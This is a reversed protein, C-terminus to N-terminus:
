RLRKRAREISAKLTTKAQVGQYCEDGIFLTPLGELKLLKREENFKKLQTKPHDSQLCKDFADGDMGVKRALTKVNDPSLDDTKFLEDAMADGKGLKDACTGAIAAWLAERHIPWYKRVMVVDDGYSDLVPKLKFHLKQCFPCGFDLFEVITVKGPVQAALIPNKDKPVDIKCQGVQKPRNLGAVVPTSLFGLATVLVLPVYFNSRSDIPETARLSLATLGLAIGSVDAVVCYPCFTGISAGQIVLFGVGAAAGALGMWALHKRMGRVHILLMAVAFFLVGLVPLPIGLPKAWATDQVIDCGGGPGCFQAGDHTAEWLLLLSVGLGAGAAIRMVFEAPLKWWSKQDKSTETM